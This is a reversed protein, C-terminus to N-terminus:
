TANRIANSDALLQRELGAITGISSAAVNPRMLRMMNPDARFASSKRPWILLRDSSITAIRQMSRKICQRAEQSRTRCGAPLWRRRWPKNLQWAFQRCQYVDYQRQDGAIPIAVLCVIIILALMVAYEVATPGDESTLFRHLKRTIRM